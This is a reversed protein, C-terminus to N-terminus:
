SKEIRIGKYLQYTELAYNDTMGAVYDVILHARFFWEDILMNESGISEIERKYNDKFKHPLSSWLKYVLTKRPYDDKLLKQIDSNPLELLIRMRDLIGEIVQYGAIELNEVERSCFIKKKTFGGLFNCILAISEANDKISETREEVIEQLKNCYFDVVLGILHRALKTKFKFFSKDEIPFIKELEENKYEAFFEETTFMGKEIGDEIDTISNSIDDAAEMIYVLPYRKGKTWNAEKLIDEYKSQESVFIGHKDDSSSSEESQKQSKVLDVAKAPYKLHALLTTTTLNLGFSDEFDDQLKIAVRFGQANGDFRIFDSLYKQEFSEIFKEYDNNTIDDVISEASGSTKANREDSQKKLSSKFTERWNRTFWDRIAAEGFHGFPPNGIDHLLCANECASIFAEKTDGKLDLEESVKRAISRGLDAVELSHTLRNRVFTGEVLPFVQTKRQMRRFATSFVIRSKDSALEEELSRNKISSPRLRNSIIINEYNFM